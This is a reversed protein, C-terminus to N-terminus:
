FNQIFIDTNEVCLVEKQCLFINVNRKSPPNHLSSVLSLNTAIFTETFSTIKKCARFNESYRKTAM